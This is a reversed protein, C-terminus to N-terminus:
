QNFEHDASDRAHETRKNEENQPVSDCCKQTSDRARSLSASRSLVLTKRRRVTRPERERSIPRVDLRVRVISSHTRLLTNQRARVARTQSLPTTKTPTSSALRARARARGWNPIRFFRARGNPGCRSSAPYATGSEFVSLVRLEMTCRLRSFDHNPSKRPPAGRHAPLFQQPIGFEPKPRPESETLTWVCVPECARLRANWAVRRGPGERERERERSVRKRSHFFCMWVTTTPIGCHTRSPTSPTPRSSILSSFFLGKKAM